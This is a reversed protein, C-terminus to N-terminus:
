TFKLSDNDKVITTTFPFKNEPVQKIMDMLFTSGSFLVRKEGDVIIQLHLCHGNGKEEFKSREIKFADVIVQRNIIREMKIKDGEFGKIQAKIGFDAFSHTSM